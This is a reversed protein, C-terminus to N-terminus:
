ALALVNDVTMLFVVIIKAINGSRILQFYIKLQLNTEKYKM